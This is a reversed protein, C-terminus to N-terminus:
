RKVGEDLPQVRGTRAMRIKRTDMPLRHVKIPLLTSM